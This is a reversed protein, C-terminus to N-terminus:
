WPRRVSDNFRALIFGKVADAHLSRVTAAVWPAERDQARVALVNAFPVRADEMGIADRAPALGAAAAADFPLAVLATDALAPALRAQALRQFKLRRPNARMDALRPQLGAATDLRILGYHHMLLLARGQGEADAPLAVTAGAPLAALRAANRSYLGMPYTVTHAVAVLASGQVRALALAPAHQAISGDIRGAALAAGAQAGDAFRVPEIRVGNRLGTAQAAALLEADADRAVAIRVIREGHADATQALAMLGLGALLVRRRDVM